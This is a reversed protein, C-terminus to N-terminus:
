KKFKQNLRFIFEDILKVPLRMLIFIWNSYIRNVKLARLLETSTRFYSSLGSTSTGGMRMRVLVEDFFKYSVKHHLIARIFFEFDGASRYDLSFDGCRKFVSKKIFTATHAPMFGFRFMWPRFFKSRYIRLKFNEDIKDVFVVNGIIMEAFQNKSFLNIVRKIVNSDEFRDDSHLFCLIDVTARLM